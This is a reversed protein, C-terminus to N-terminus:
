YYSTVNTSDTSEEDSECIKEGCLERLKRILKKEDNNNSRYFVWIKFIRQDQALM